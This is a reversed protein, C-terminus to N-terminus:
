FNAILVEKADQKETTIKGFKDILIKTKFKKYMDLLMPHYSYTIVCPTEVKTVVDRLKKHDFRTDEEGTNMGDQFFTHYFKGAPIFIYDANKTELISSYLEADLKVDFNDKKFREIYSLALPNFNSQDFKGSSITGLESCRNLLFFLAARVAPNKQQNFTKQFVNFVADDPFPYFFKVNDIISDPEEFLTLWFDYVSFETTHAIVPRNSEALNLEVAGSFFLFSHVNSNEPILNKLIQLAKSEHRLDKIPTRM